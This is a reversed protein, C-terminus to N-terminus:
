SRKKKQKKSDKSKILSLVIMSVKVIAFVVGLVLVLIFAYVDLMNSEIWSLQLSPNKFFEAGNNRIVYEIWFMATDLATMPRDKFRISVEKAKMRYSDNALMETVKNFLTEENIEHYELIKGYGINQVQLLNNYQDAYIPVGLIPVGHFTAEQTGILGGHSVFLRINPHSLIEKQPMWKRVILNEPKNELIDEEWKWLVTQKLRRFVNLIANKKDEPLESSRVNSGFNMYVVGHKAKDLVKQLDEPLKADSKSLHAGGIEVVNPLYATPPDFSFHSNVLILSANRQLDYLSPVPQPLDKLLYKKVLQEQEELYFYRWYIYEYMTFYLNRMRGWFSTPDRVDLFEQIVTALQLPNRTVINHKMCNGYTTVLVLPANYKHALVYLADQYFHESIVLDFKNDKELFAKIEKSNLVLETFALGGKWLINEHFKEAPLNVMTFVNPRGGGIIDWIEKKDVVHQHYNPPPNPERHGTIVTVNHGRRALELGIPRLM